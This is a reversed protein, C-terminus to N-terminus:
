GALTREAKQVAEVMQKVKQLDKKFRIPAGKKDLSNTGTCSDVGEPRVRMIGEAVNGPAIGGALIVPINSAAVLEAAARWSCTQGTIGVFGKVPQSETDQNSGSVLMTDTLFFDSAPEFIKGFDLTPVLNRKGSQAIPISRMVLIQPFRKKVNEQLRILKQCYNWVDKRDTLAECFHVIDPQYYDLTRLVSDLSNYLTILSSKAPSSRVREITEAVGPVKWEKESVIVSGIHDVGINILAQAEGPDQVEYIQIIIKKMKRNVKAATELMNLRNECVSERIMQCNFLLSQIGM